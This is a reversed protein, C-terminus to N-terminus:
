LKKRPAHLTDWVEKLVLLNEKAWEMPERGVNRPLKFKPTLTEIDVPVDSENSVIHFHPPGHERPGARVQIECHDFKKITPM